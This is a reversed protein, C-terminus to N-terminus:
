MKLFSHLFLNLMENVNESSFIQNRTEYSFKILFDGITQKNIERVIKFQKAYSENINRKNLTISQADHDYLGNIIPGISYDYKRMIDIFINDIATASNGQIRTPFNVISM